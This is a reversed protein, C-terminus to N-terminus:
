AHERSTSQTPQPALGGKSKALDILREVHAILDDTNFPKRLYANAGARKAIAEDAASCRGTLMLVPTDYCYDSARIQCLAEIGSHEPMRCDLIVLAPCKSEVLGLVPAGDDVAGIIYGRPELAQRVVEIILEDDDAILILAM